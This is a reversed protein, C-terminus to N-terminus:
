RVGTNPNLKDRLFDGFYNISFSIFFIAATASAFEWWGAKPLTLDRRASDLM